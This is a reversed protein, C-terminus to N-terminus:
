LLHKGISDLRTSLTLVSEDYKLESARDDNLVLFLSDRNVIYAYAAFFRLVVSSIDCVQRREAGSPQVRSWESMARAACLARAARTDRIDRTLAGGGGGARASARAGAGPVTRCQM